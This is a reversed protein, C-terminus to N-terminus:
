ERSETNITLVPCPAHRVVQNATSGFLMIDLPNRGRVGMVILSAERERATELIERYPKGSRVETDIESWDRAEDPVIEDLRKKVNEEMQERYEAVSMPFEWDGGEPFWEVVNLLTLNGGAEQALLLAYEVARLSLTAFDIACVIREFGAPQLRDEVGPESITLVPCRSKRLVKEAVSGLVLREFGERGHTGLCILDAEDSEAADLIASAPQGELVSFRTEVKEARCLAAFADLRALARERVETELYVPEAVYPFHDPHVLVAPFVHLFHVLGESQKALAVAYDAARFSFRSFDTPCLIREFRIM